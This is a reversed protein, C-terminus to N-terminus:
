RCQLGALASQEDSQASELCDRRTSEINDRQSNYTDQAQQRVMSEGMNAVAAGMPTMRYLMNSNVAEQITNNMDNQASQLDDRATEECRARASSLNSIINAREPCAPPAASRQGGGGGPPPAVGMDCTGILRCSETPIYGTSQANVQVEFFTVSSATIVALAIRRKKTM